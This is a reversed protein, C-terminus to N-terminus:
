VDNVVSSPVMNNIHQKLIEHSFVLTRLATHITINYCEYSISGVCLSDTHNLPNSSNNPSYHFIVSSLTDSDETFYDSCFQIM